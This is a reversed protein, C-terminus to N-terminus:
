RWLECKFKHPVHSHHATGYRQTSNQTAKLYPTTSQSFLVSTITNQFSNKEFVKIVFL